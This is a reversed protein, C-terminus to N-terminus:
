SYESELAYSVDPHLSVFIGVIVYVLRLTSVEDRLRLDVYYM